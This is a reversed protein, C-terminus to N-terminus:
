IEGVLFQLEREIQGSDGTNLELLRRLHSLSETDAEVFEVGMRGKEFHVARANFIMTVEDSLPIILRCEDQRTVSIPEKISILAGKLSIDMLTERLRRGSAELFVDTGFLVRAFNRKDNMNPETTM